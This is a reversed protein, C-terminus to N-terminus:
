KKKQFAQRSLTVSDINPFDNKLVGRLSDLKKLSKNKKQALDKESRILQPRALTWARQIWWSVPRQTIQSINKIEQAMNEPVSISLKM